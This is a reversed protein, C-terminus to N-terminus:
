DTQPRFNYFGNKLPVFDSLQPPFHIWIVLVLLASPLYSYQGTSCVASTQLIYIYTNYFIACYNWTNKEGGVFRPIRRFTPTIILTNNTNRVSQQTTALIASAVSQQQQLDIWEAGRRSRPHLSLSVISFRAFIQIKFPVRCNNKPDQHISLNIFFVQCSIIELNVDYKTGFCITINVMFFIGM